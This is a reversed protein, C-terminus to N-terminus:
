EMLLFHITGVHSDKSNRLRDSWYEVTGPVATLLNRNRGSEAAMDRLEHLTDLLGASSTAGRFRSVLVTVRERDTPPKTTPVLSTVTAHRAVTGDFVGLPQGGHTLLHLESKKSDGHMADKAGEHRYGGYGTSIRLGGKRDMEISRGLGDWITHAQVM